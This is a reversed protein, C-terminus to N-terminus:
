EISRQLNQQLSQFKMTMPVETELHSVREIQNAQQAHQLHAFSRSDSHDAMLLDAILIPIRLPTGSLKIIPLLFHLPPM